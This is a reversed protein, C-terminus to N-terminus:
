NRDCRKSRCVLFHDIGFRGGKTNFWLAVTAIFTYNINQAVVEHKGAVMMGFALSLLLLSSLALSVRTFLGVILAAGLLLELYPLTYTYPVLLFAPLYTDKFMGAIGASAAAAGGEGLFKNLGAFFFLLGIALRLVFGCVAETTMSCGCSSDTKEQGTM